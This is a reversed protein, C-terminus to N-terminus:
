LRPLLEYWWTRINKTYLDSCARVYIWHSSALWSVGRRTGHMDAILKQVYPAMADLVAAM